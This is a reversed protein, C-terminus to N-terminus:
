DNSLFYWEGSIKIDLSKIRLMRAIGDDANFNNAIISIENIVVAGPLHRELFSIMNYVDTETEAVGTIKFNYSVLNVGTPLSNIQIKKISQVPDTIDLSIKINHIDFNIPLTNFIEEIASLRLGSVVRKDEGTNKIENLLDQYEKIKITYENISKKINELNKAREREKTIFMNDIFGYGVYLVIIAVILTIKGIIHIMILDSFNGTKSLKLPM